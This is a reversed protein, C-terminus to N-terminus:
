IDCKKRQKKKKAKDTELDVQQKDEKQNKKTRKVPIGKTAKGKKKEMIKENTNLVEAGQKSRKAFRTPLTPIPLSEHLLKSPTKKETSATVSSHDAILVNDLLSPSTRIDPTANSTSPVEVPTNNTVNGNYFENDPIANYNIPYIGSGRFGSIANAPTTARIWAKGILKGSQQRNIRKQPNLRMHLNTEATFFTKFPKFVARDLPQLVSTTHSPLCLLIIDNARAFELMDVASSHSSHGDLILLVKGQPKMKAFHEKLWTMFLETNIYASKRNMYVKSGSPLGDMFEDKKQVGKIIVVPPLFNGTANCCAVVTLTEGREGSTISHVSRSGKTAVVKGVKNNMQVGTEDMNFIREPKDLLDNQELVETLLDYFSNIEARNLALARSVSLGEAQRM